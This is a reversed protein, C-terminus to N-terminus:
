FPIENDRPQDFADSPEQRKDEIQKPATSKPLRPAQQEEAKAGSLIAALKQAKELIPEAGDCAEAILDVIVAMRTRSKDLELELRSIAQYIRDKKADTLDLDDDVLSRIHGIHFRARQKTPQNVAVTNADRETQAAHQFLLRQSVRTAEGRFARCYDSADEDRQDPIKWGTLEEIEFAQAAGLVSCMYDYDSYLAHGQDSFETALRRAAIQEVLRFKQEPQLLTPLDHLDDESIMNHAGGGACIM